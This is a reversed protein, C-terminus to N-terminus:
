WGDVGLSWLLANTDAAMEAPRGATLRANDPLIRGPPRLGGVDLRQSPLHTFGSTAGTRAPLSM